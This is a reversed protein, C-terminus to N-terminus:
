INILRGRPMHLMHYQAYILGVIIVHLAKM